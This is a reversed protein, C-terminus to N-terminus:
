KFIYHHVYKCVRFKDLKRKSHRKSFGRSYNTHIRSSVKSLTLPFYHPKKLELCEKNVNMCPFPSLKLTLKTIFNSKGWRWITKLSHPKFNWSVEKEWILMLSSDLGTVSVWVATVHLRGTMYQLQNFFVYISIPTFPTLQQLVTHGEPNRSAVKRALPPPRTFSLAVGIRITPQRWDQFSGACLTYSQNKFNMKIRRVRLKNNNRM